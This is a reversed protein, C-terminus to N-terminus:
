WSFDGPVRVPVIQRGIKAKQTGLIATKTAIKKMKVHTELYIAAPYGVPYLKVQIGPVIQRFGTVYVM